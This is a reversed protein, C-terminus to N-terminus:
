TEANHQASAVEACVDDIADRLQAITEMVEDRSAKEGDIGAKAQQLVNKTATLEANQVSVPAGDADEKAKLADQVHEDEVIM